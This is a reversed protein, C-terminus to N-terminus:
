SAEGVLRVARRGAKRVVGALASKMRFVTMFRRGEWTLGHTGCFHLFGARERRTAPSRRFLHGYKARYHAFAELFKRRNAPSLDLESSAHTWGVEKAQVELILQAHLKALRQEDPLNPFARDMAASWTEFPIRYLFPSHTARCARNGDSGSYTLGRLMAGADFMRVGLEEALEVCLIKAAGGLSLFVTDVNTSRIWGRLDDAVLDLNADLNRGDDRPQLLHVEAAAPWFEDAAERFVREKLLERLLSAEAGVLGVRRGNCYRQFEHELWTLLIYSTEADPNRDAEPPRNLRLRPLLESIPWLREHFDVYTAQELARQLRDLRQPSIGPNGYAAAGAVPGDERDCRATLGEQQSLLLTLEMDGMRVFSFSQTSNMLASLRVSEAQRKSLDNPKPGLASPPSPIRELLAAHCSKVIDMTMLYKSGVTRGIETKCDIVRAALSM